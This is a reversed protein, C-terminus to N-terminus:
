FDDQAQTKLNELATIMNSIVDAVRIGIEWGISPFRNYNGHVFLNEKRLSYYNNKWNTLKAIADDLSNKEIFKVLEQNATTYSGIKGSGDAGLEILRQYPVLAEDDSNFSYIGMALPVSLLISALLDSPQPNPAVLPDPFKVSKNLKKSHIEVKQTTGDRDIKIQDMLRATFWGNIMTSIVEQQLPISYL